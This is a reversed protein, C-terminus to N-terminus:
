LLAQPTVRPAVEHAIIPQRTLNPHFPRHRHRHAVSSGFAYSLTCIGDGVVYFVISIGSLLKDIFRCSACSRVCAIVHVTWLSYQFSIYAGYAICRASSLPEGPSAALGRTIVDKIYKKEDEFQPHLLQDLHRPEVMLIAEDTTILGESELDLAIRLAATGTRKGNRCQLMFLRGGQVTFEVDQMDKMHKELMTTNAVLESFIPPMLDAMLRIPMPTRIGAVVDEGQANILFEGFLERDGNAPNRTFCVGTGSTDDMNGYVM